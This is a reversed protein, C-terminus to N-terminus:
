LVTVEFRHGLEAASEACFRGRSQGGFGVRVQDVAPERTLHGFVDGDSGGILWVSLTRQLEHNLIM